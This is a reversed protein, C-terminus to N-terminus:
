SVDPLRKMPNQMRGLIKTLMKTNAIKANLDALNEIQLNTAAMESILAILVQTHAILLSSPNTPWLCIKSRRSNKM